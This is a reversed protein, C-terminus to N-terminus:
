EKAPLKLISKKKKQIAKNSDTKIPMNCPYCYKEMVSHQPVQCKEPRLPLCPSSPLGRQAVIQKTAKTELIDKTDHHVHTTQSRRDKPMQKEM